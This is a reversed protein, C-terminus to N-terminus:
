MMLFFPAAKFVTKENKFHWHHRHWDGYPTTDV